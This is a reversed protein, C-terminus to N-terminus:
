ILGNRDEQLAERTELKRLERKVFFDARESFPKIALYAIIQPFAIWGVIFEINNIGFRAVAILGLALLFAWVKAFGLLIIKLLGFEWSEIWTYLEKKFQFLLLISLIIFTGSVKVGAERMEFFNFRFALILLPAVYAVIVFLVRLWFRQNKYKKLVKM